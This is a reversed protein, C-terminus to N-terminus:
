GGSAPQSSDLPTRDENGIGNVKRNGTEDNTGKLLKTHDYRNGARTAMDRRIREFAGDEANLDDLIHRFRDSCREMQRDIHPPPTLGLYVYAEKIHVVDHFYNAFRRMKEPVESEAATMANIAERMMGKLDQIDRAINKLYAESMSEPKDAM